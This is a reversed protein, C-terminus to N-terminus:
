EIRLARVVQGDARETGAEARRLARRVIGNEGATDEPEVKRIRDTKGGPEVLVRFGEGRHQPEAHAERLDARDRRARLCAVRLRADETQRLVPRDDIAQPEVIAADRSLDSSCVDSSWDRIRM